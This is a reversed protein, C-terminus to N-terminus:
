PLGSITYMPRFTIELFVLPNQVFSSGSTGGPMGNLKSNLVKLVKLISRPFGMCLSVFWGLVRIESLFALVSLARQSEFLSSKVTQSWRVDQGNKGWVRGRGPGAKASMSKHLASKWFEGLSHSRVVKLELADHVHNSPVHQSVVFSTGVWGSQVWRSGLVTCTHLPM